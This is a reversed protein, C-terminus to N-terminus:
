TPIFRMVKGHKLEERKREQASLGNFWAQTGDEFIYWGQTKKAM